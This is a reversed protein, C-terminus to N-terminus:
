NAGLRKKLVRVGGGCRQLIIGSKKAVVPDSIQRTEIDEVYVSGHKGEGTGVYAGVRNGVQSCMASFENYGM